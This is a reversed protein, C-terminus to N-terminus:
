SNAFGKKVLFNVLEDNYRSEHNQLWTAIFAELDNLVTITDNDVRDKLREIERM